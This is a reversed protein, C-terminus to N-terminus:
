EDVVEWTSGQWDSKGDWDTPSTATTGTNSISPDNTAAKAPGKESKTDRGCRTGADTILLLALILAPVALDPRWYRRPAPEVM